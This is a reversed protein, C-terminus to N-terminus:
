MNLKFMKRLCLHLLVLMLSRIITEKSIVNKWIIKRKMLQSVSREMHGTVIAVHLHDIEQQFILRLDVSLGLYGNLLLSKFQMYESPIYESYTM